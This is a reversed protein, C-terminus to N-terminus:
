SVSDVIVKGSGITIGDATQVTLPGTLARGAAPAASATVTGPVTWSGGSTHVANSDTVAVSGFAPNVFVDSYDYDTTGSPVAYGDVVTICQGAAPNAITVAEEATAGGSSGALV